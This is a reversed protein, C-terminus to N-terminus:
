LTPFNVGTAAVCASIESTDNQPSRAVITVFQLFTSVTIDFAGSGDTSVPISAVFTKAEAGSCSSNDYVDLEFGGNSAGALAGTLRTTPHLSVPNQSVTWNRLATQLVPTPQGLNAATGVLDIGLGGNQFLSNGSVLNEIGLNIRIGAGDNFAIINGFGGAGIGVSNNNAGFGVIDIGSGENGLPAGNAGIGIRNSFFSNGSSAALIGDALPATTSRNGAIVNGQSPDFGGVLTGHANSGLNIGGQANPVATTGTRNTGIFNGLIDDNASAVNLGFGSFNNIALGEVVSGDSGADLQLGHIPTNNVFVSRGPGRVEILPTGAFGPQSTGDIIVPRTIHITAGTISITRAGGGGIAFTIRDRATNLNAAAVADRLSCHATNCAGDAVDNTSNVVFTTQAAAPRAAVFVAAVLGLGITVTRRIWGAKATSVGQNGERLHAM